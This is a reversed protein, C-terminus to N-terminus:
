NQGSNLKNQLNTTANTQNASPMAFQTTFESFNILTFDLSAFQSLTLGTCIPNEATGFNLGLQPRGQEQIIRALMSKFTCYSQDEKLCVGFIDVGSCYTGLYVTNKFKRQQALLQETTNCSLLGNLIGDMDCCDKVNLLYSTCQMPTGSFVTLNNPDFDKSAEEVAALGGYSQIFDNNPLYTKDACGGQLCFMDASCKVVNVTTGPARCEYIQNYIDCTGDSATVGCASGTQYCGQGRLISCDNALPIIGGCKYHNEYKWCDRAVALGNIIKTSPGDLCTSTEVVCPLDAYATNCAVGAMMLLLTIVKLIHGNM